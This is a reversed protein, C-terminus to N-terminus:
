ISLQIKYNNAKIHKKNKNIFNDTLDIIERSNRQQNLNIKINKKNTKVLKDIILNIGNANLDFVNITKLKNNFNLFSEFDEEDYKSM